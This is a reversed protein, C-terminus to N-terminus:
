LLARNLESSRKGGSGLALCWVPNLESLVTHSGGGDEWLLVCFHPLWSTSHGHSRHGSARTRVCPPRAHLWPCPGSLPCGHTRGPVPDPRGRAGVESEPNMWGVAEASYFLSVYWTFSCKVTYHSKGLRAPLSAFAAGLGVSFVTFLTSPHSQPQQERLWRSANWAWCHSESRAVTFGWILKNERCRKNGRRLGVDRVNILNSEPRFRLPFGPATGLSWATEAVERHARM